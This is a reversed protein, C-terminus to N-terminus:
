LTWVSGSPNDRVGVELAELEARVADARAFDKAKRAEARATMLAEVREVDLGVRAAKLDRRALLFAEAERGFTGLLDAVVAMDANFRILTRARVQKNVGKGSDLLRNVDNLPASLAAIAEATNLDDYLAAEVAPM